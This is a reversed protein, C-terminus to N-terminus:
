GWFCERICTSISINKYKSIYFWFVYFFRNFFHRFFYIIRLYKHYRSSETSCILRVTRSLEEPGEEAQEPMGPAFGEYPEISLIEFRPDEKLLHAIIQENERSDFTCTSYLLM